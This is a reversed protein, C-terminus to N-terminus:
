SFFDVNPNANQLSVASGTDLFIRTASTIAPECRSAIINMAEDSNCMFIPEAYPNVEKIAWWKFVRGGSIDRNITRRNSQTGSVDYVYDVSKSISVLPFYM